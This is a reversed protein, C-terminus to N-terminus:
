DVSLAAQTALDESKGTYSKGTNVSPLMSLPFVCALSRTHAAKDSDKRNACVM